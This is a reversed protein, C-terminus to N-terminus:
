APIADLCAQLDAANLGHDAAQVFDKAPKERAAIPVDNDLNAVFGRVPDILMMWNQLRSSNGLQHFPHARLGPIVIRNAHAEHPVRLRSRFDRSGGINNNDVAVQLAARRLVQTLMDSCGAGYPTVM